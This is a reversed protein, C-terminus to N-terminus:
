RKKTSCLGRVITRWDEKSKFCLSADSFSSIKEVQLEYLRERRWTTKLRGPQSKKPDWTLAQNKLNNDKGKHSTIYSFYGLKLILTPPPNLARYVSSPFARYEWICISVRLDYKGSLSDFAIVKFFKSKIPDLPHIQTKLNQKPKSPKNRSCM